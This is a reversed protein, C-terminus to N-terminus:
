SSGRVVLKGPFVTRGITKPVEGSILDLLQRAAEAGMREMPQSYTTLPPESFRAAAIDDFGVVSLDEPIRVGAKRVVEIFALAMWDSTLIVGDPRDAMAVFTNAANSGGDLSYDGEAYVTSVPHPAARVADEFGSLRETEHYGPLGGVFMLRRRGREILHETLVRTGEREAVVVSPVGFPSLDVLLGVSPLRASLIPLDGRRPPDNTIALIGDVFGGRAVGMIRPDASQDKALAGIIMSYGARMLESDIGHLTPELVNFGDWPPMIVMIIRSLGSRLSRAAINTRYGLRQAAEQVRARTTANVRAPNSLARSATALAVGAERAVDTLRIADPAEDLEHAKQEDTM